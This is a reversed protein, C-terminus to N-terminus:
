VLSFFGGDERTRNNNVKKDRHHKIGKVVCGKRGIKGEGGDMLNPIHMGKINEESHVQVKEESKTPVRRWKEEHIEAWSNTKQRTEAM